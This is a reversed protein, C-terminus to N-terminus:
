PVIIGRGVMKGAALRDFAKQSDALDFFEVDNRLLGQDGLTVAARTDADTGGIFSIITANKGAIAGMIPMELKGNAAGVVAYTALKALAAISTAVTADSGVFDLVADCGRGETLKMVEGALDEMGADLVEDAGMEKARELKDEAIDAVILRAETLIKIYQVAFGGLGGAGIVLATRGKTLKDMVRQVAHYSTTGADTLPGALKPDLKGLPIIPRTSEILVYDAIGGNMGYGRGRQNMECANDFGADCELCAGCSRTSVLAVPQGEAYGEVGKGCKDIWGGVEHGLTFPMQWGMFQEMAAPLEPMHLDSQCLGNGAVKIRVEGAAPEPIKIEVIEPPQQWQTLRFARMTDAV